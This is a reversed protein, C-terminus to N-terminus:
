APGSEAPAFYALAQEGDMLIELRRWDREAPVDIVKILDSFAAAEPLLTTLQNTAGRIFDRNFYEDPDDPFLALPYIRAETLAQFFHTGYSPEPTLGQQRVALEVLAQANYIDAYGVPVGPRQAAVSQRFHAGPPGSCSTSWAFQLLIAMREDYDILGMRRRYLLADPSYVSAYIRRIAVTLDRLNEKLTGQNPCFYSAYKGAFSTSFSDELL